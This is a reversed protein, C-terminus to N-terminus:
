AKQSTTATGGLCYLTVSQNIKNEPSRTARLARKNPGGPVPLVIIADAMDPKVPSGSNHKEACCRDFLYGMVMEV